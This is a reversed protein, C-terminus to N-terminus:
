KIQGYLRELPETIINSIEGIHNHLVEEANLLNAIQESQQIEKVIEEIEQALEPTIQEGQMQKEYLERQSNRFKNFLQRSPEDQMVTEYAEKLVIFENSQEITKALSTAAEKVKIM